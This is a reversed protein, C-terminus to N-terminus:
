DAYLVNLLRDVFVELMIEISRTLIRIGGVCPLCIFYLFFM